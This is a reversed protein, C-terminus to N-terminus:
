RWDGVFGAHAEVYAAALRKGLSYSNVLPHNMLARAAKELSREAIAEAALREFAKVRLILGMNEDPIGTHRDARPGGGDVVCSSEIVDEDRLGPIAGNNPLSLYMRRPAGTNVAEIFDLAVGAYGEAGRTPDLDLQVAQRKTGSEIAMYNNEREGYAQLFLEAARDLQRPLELGAMAAMMARNTELVTEGRTKGGAMIGAYAKDPYYYYYLYGNCLTGMSQLLAPDFFRQETDLCLRPHALCDGIYERGGHRISPFWSLHNLGYCRVETEGPPLGLLRVFEHAQEPPSDCIGYVNHYGASRLAQTVLGSPNTFNFMLAGPSAHQKALRCYALLPPISRMAMAFGGAGVTEQGILGMELAIREDKVRGEDGGVRLTSIIYDAGALAKVADTSLEFDIEPAHKALLARSIGGFVALKEADPDMFVVRGIGANVARAALVKALFPSRVGGGGLLTLKKM